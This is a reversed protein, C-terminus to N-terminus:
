TRGKYLRDIIYHYSADNPKVNDRIMVTAAIKTSKVKATSPYIISNYSCKLTFDGDKSENAILLARTLLQIVIYTEGSKCLENILILYSHYNLVFDKLRSSGKRNVFVYSTM